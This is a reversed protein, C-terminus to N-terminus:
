GGGAVRRRPLKIFSCTEEKREKEKQKISQSEKRRNPNAKEPARVFNSVNRVVTANSLEKNQVIQVLICYNEVETATAAAVVVMILMRQNQRIRLRHDYSAFRTPCGEESAM